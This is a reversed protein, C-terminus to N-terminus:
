GDATDPAAPKRQYFGPLRLQVRSDTFIGFFLLETAPKMHGVDEGVKLTIKPNVVVAANVSLLTLESVM